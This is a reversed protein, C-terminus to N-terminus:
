ILSRVVILPGFRPHPSMQRFQNENMVLEVKIEEESEPLYISPYVMGRFRNIALDYLTEGNLLFQVMPLDSQQVAVGVTDDNQVKVVRM